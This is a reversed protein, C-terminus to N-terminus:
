SRNGGIGLAVELALAAQLVARDAGPCGIVQVGMPAGSVGVAGPVSVCPSGLLTWVRNFNSPGTSGLGLPAEDPASPTLLVDCHARLWDNMELRCRHTLAQAAGYAQDSIAGAEQLYDRLVPSLFQPTREIESRLARAAEWGQIVGHADFLEAMMPPLSLAKITAGARQWARCATQMALVASPTSDAWPYSEPVGVVWNSRGPVHAASPKADPVATSLALGSLAQGLWAVDAVTRAFLGATDLTWSFPKFGAIPLLGFTPKYGVVGCYSAPRITSGGTQSGVAWPLLGAAVAAASGASSGGPTRDWAAPNRTAAPHLFAFETTAMKGVVVGGARNIVGVLGANVRAPVLAHLASGYATPLDQTDIIDKLGIPLGGLLAGSNHGAALAAALASPADRLSTFALIQGDLADIAALTQRMAEPATLEGRQIAALADLATYRLWIPTVGAEPVPSPTLRTPAIM